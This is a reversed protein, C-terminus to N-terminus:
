KCHVKLHMTGSFLERKPGGDDVAPEGIFTVKLTGKLNFWKKKRAAMYDHLRRIAIRNRLTSGLVSRLNSIANKIAELDTDPDDISKDEEEKEEENDVEDGSPIEVAVSATPAGIPDVWADACADAYNETERLSFHAFCTPCQHFGTPKETDV